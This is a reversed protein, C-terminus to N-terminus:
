GDVVWRHTETTHDITQADPQRLNSATNPQMAPSPVLHEHAPKGRRVDWRLESAQRRLELCAANAAASRSLNSHLSNRPGVRHLVKVRASARVHAWESWTWPAVGLTRHHHLRAATSSNSCSVLACHHWDSRQARHRLRQVLALRIEFAGGRELVVQSAAQPAAPQRAM